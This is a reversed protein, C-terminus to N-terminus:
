SETWSTCRQYVEMLSRHLQGQKANVRPWLHEMVCPKEEGVREQMGALGQVPSDVDRVVHSLAVQSHKTPPKYLWAM